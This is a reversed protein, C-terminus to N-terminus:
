LLQRLTEILKVRETPTAAIPAVNLTTVGAERFAALREKVFERTGILNIDRVLEDPVVKAAGDPDNQRIRARALIIAAGPSPGGAIADLKELWPLNFKMGFWSGFEDANTLAQWVRARPARLMITKEIRDPVAVTM